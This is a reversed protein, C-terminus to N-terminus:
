KNLFYIYIYVLIFLWAPTNNAPYLERKYERSSGGLRNIIVDRYSAFRGTTQDRYVTRIKM